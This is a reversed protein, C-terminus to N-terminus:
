SSTDAKFDIRYKIIFVTPIYLKTDTTNNRPGLIRDYADTLSVVYCGRDAFTPVLKALL